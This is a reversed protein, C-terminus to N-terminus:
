KSGPAALLPHLAEALSALAAESPLGTVNTALVGDPRVVFVNATRRACPMSALVTGDFDLMVPHTRAKRIGTVVRDRLFRPVARVDAVGAIDTTRGWYQKLPGLWADVEEVGKRDGVVLLLPRSRPFTHHHNTGFQDPLRFSHLAAPPPTRGTKSEAGARPAGLALLVLFM